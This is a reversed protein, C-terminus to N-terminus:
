LYERHPQRPKLVRHYYERHYTRACEKCQRAPNGSYNIYHKTNTEDFKHGRICHTKRKNYASPAIGRLINVRSTVIEMHRPNQCSRNRCLHDIQLDDPPFAGFHFCWSLRHAYENYGGDEGQLRFIGYGNIKGGTWNWCENWEGFDVKSWFRDLMHLQNTDYDVIKPM